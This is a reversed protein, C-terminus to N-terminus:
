RKIVFKSVSRGEKSSLQLVYTGVPLSKVDVPVPAVFSSAEYSQAILKRGQIDSIELMVPSKVTPMEIMLVDNAPNPYVTALINEEFDDINSPVQRVLSFAGFRTLSSKIMTVTGTGTFVIDEYTNCDTANTQFLIPEIFGDFESPVEHGVNLVNYTLSVDAPVSVEDVISIGEELSQLPQIVYSYNMSQSPIIDDSCEYDPDDKIYATWYNSEAGEQHITVPTYSYESFGIPFLVEGDIGTAEEEFSLIKVAMLIGEGTELNPAANAIIHPPVQTPLYDPVVVEAEASLFITGDQLFINGYSPTGLSTPESKFAFSDIPILYSQSLYVNGGDKDVIVSGGLCYTEELIQDDSGVFLIAGKESILFDTEEELGATDINYIDIREVDGAIMIRATEWLTIESWGESSIINRAEGQFGPLIIPSTELIVDTTIDPLGSGGDAWVWNEPINWFDAGAGGVFVAQANLQSWGLATILSLFLLTKKM